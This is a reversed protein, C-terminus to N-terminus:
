PWPHRTLREFGDEDRRVRYVSHPGFGVIWENAKLEVRGVLRGARDIIDYRTREAKSWPQKRLLLFGDPSHLSVFPPAFPPVVEAWDTDRREPDPYDPNATRAIYARRETRDIPIRPWGLDPGSITRGDPARWNVRYPRQRAIAVWGDPSISVADVASMYAQRFIALPRERTGFAQVRQDFSEVMRLTDRRANSRSAVIVLASDLLRFGDKFDSRVQKVTRTFVVNGERDAGRPAGSSISILADDPPVTAVVSDGALILWRRGEPEDTLLTSDGGLPFLRGFHLVEGPGRGVRGISRATGTALDIVLLKNEGRDTVLVRGDPLERLAHVRTLEVDISANPPKLARLPVEQAGLVSVALLAWLSSARSAVARGEM